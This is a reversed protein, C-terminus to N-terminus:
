IFIKHLCVELGTCAMIRVTLSQDNTYFIEVSNENNCQGLCLRCMGDSVNANETTQMEAKM